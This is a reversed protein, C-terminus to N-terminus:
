TYRGILLASVLTPYTVKYVVPLALLSSFNVSRESRPRSFRDKNGPVHMPEKGLESLTNLVDSRSNLIQNGKDLSSVVITLNGALHPSDMWAIIQTVYPQTSSM